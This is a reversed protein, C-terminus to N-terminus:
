GITMTGLIQIAQPLSIDIFEQSYPLGELPGHDGSAAPRDLLKTHGSDLDVWTRQDRREGMYDKARPKQSERARASPDRHDGM